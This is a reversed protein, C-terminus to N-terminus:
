RVAPGAATAMVHGTLIMDAGEARAPRATELGTDTSGGIVVIQGTLGPQRQSTVTTM